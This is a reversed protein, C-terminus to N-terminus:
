DSEIYHLIDDFSKNSKAIAAMLLKQRRTEREALLSKLEACAADYESKAKGVKEQAKTIQDELAAPTKTRAM